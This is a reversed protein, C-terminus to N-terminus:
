IKKCKDRAGFGYYSGISTIEEKNFYRNFRRKIDASLEYLVGRFGGVYIVKREPSDRRVNKIEADKQINVGNYEMTM